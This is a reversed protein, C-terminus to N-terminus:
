IHMVFFVQQKEKKYCMEILKNDYVILDIFGYAAEFFQKGYM